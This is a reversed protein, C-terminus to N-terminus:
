KTSISYYYLFYSWGGSTSYRFFVEWGDIHNASQSRLVEILYCDGNNARSPLENKMVWSMMNADEQDMDEDTIMFFIDINIDKGVNIQFAEKVLNEDGVESLFQLNTFNGTYENALIEFSTQAYLNLSIGLLFIIMIKKM